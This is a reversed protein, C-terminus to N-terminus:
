SKGNLLNELTEPIRIRLNGSETTEAPFRVFNGRYFWFFASSINGPEKAYFEYVMPALISVQEMVRNDNIPSSFAMGKAPISVLAGYDGITQPAISEILLMGAAAFDGNLFSFFRHGGPHDLPSVTLKEKALNFLADSFLEENSREWGPLDERRLLRLQHNYDFVLITCTGPFDVRYVLEKGANHNLIEESKVILKLHDKAHSFDKFFFQYAPASFDIRNFHTYIVSERNGAASAAVTRVLNDLGFKLETNNEDVVRIFGDSTSIVRDGKERFYQMITQLMQRYEAVSLLSHYDAPMDLENEPLDPETM